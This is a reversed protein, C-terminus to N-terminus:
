NVSSSPSIVFSLLATHRRPSLQPPSKVIITNVLNIKGNGGRSRFVTACSVGTLLRGDLGTLAAMNRDFVSGYSVVCM